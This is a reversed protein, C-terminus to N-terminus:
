PRARSRRRPRPWAATSPAKPRAGADGDARGSSTKRGTACSRRVPCAQCRPARPTCTQQGHIVLSVHLDKRLKPPVLRQLSDHV